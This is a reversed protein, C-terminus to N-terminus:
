VKGKVAQTVNTIHEAIKECAMFLDMYILGSKVNYEGKEMSVLHQKKFEDRKLIIEKRIREAEELNAQDYDISLNKVMVKLADNLLNLMTMMNSRQGPSFWTKDNLKKELNKSMQYCIDGIRELDNIISLMGRVKISSAESLGGKTVELLYDAIEVEVRDTIDEYKQIKALKKDIKKPEKANFLDTFFGLMKETLTGFKAVEKRAELISLEPTGMIGKEIYELHYEKDIKGRSPTMRVVIKEIYKVFWILILTNIVNFNIHFLTLAWQITDGEQGKSSLPSEGWIKLTEWDILNIFLSFIILMWFVGFINFILHARAARKAYVNGILAALNATITTGINEGLIIAAANEFGIIDKACFTLTLAMAASSSQVVVTILTGIVVFILVSFFGFSNLSEIFSEIGPVQKLDPVSHKLEDLGIFLIAFGILFEALSKLNTKSSFMLPFGFAIVPLAYYSLSFKSFGLFTILVATITTGINAGMIVGIAQRLNLLGANVFSVIMVTTASSSQIVATTMFGTLVGTLRNSTMKSLIERLKTGAIKQIGESMAKMGYIFLGLAGILKLVELVGYDM